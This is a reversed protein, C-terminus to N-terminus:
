QLQYIIGLRTLNRVWFLYFRELTDTSDLILLKTTASLLNFLNLKERYRNVLNAKFNKLDM